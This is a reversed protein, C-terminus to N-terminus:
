VNCSVAAKLTAEALIQSSDLVNLPLTSSEVIVPLETCALAVADHNRGLDSILGLLGELTRDSHRGAMVEFIWHDVRAQIAENPYVPKINKAHFYKDYARTSSLSRSCLIAIDKPQFKTAVSVLEDPLNVIQVHEYHPFDDYYAFVSNCPITVVGVGLKSFLELAENIESLLVQKNAVGREDLGGNALSKMFMPPYDADQVADYQDSCIDILRRLFHASARPGLGGLIGIKHWPNKKSSSM